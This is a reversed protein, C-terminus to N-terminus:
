VSVQPLVALVVGAGVRVVAETAVFRNSMGRSSGAALTAGDLPWSLGSTTVGGAPGHMPILSILQGIDAQLRRTGRVVHVTADSRVWDIEPVGAWRPSALTAAAGVEHDYRGGEAGVLVLRFPESLAGLELALELDTADKDIPHRIVEASSPLPGEVSDLDGVITDVRYGLSDAVELGSDAAVVLDADPLEDILGVPVPDGGAFIIVTSM